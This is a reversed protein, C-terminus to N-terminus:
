CVPVKILNDDVAPGTTWLVPAPTRAPMGHRALSQGSDVRWRM